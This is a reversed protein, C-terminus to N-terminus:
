IRLLQSRYDSPSMGVARRFVKAFYNPDPYGVAKGIDRINASPMALQKRAQELRYLTLYTVFSQGFEQKFLKCFYAESYNLDESIGQVSIDKM